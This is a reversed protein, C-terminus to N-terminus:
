ILHYLIKVDMGIPLTNNFNNYYVINTNYIINMGEKIKLKYLSIKDSKEEKIADYPNIYFMEINNLNIKENLCVYINMDTLVKNKQIAQEIVNIEQKLKECYDEVTTNDSIDLIRYKDKKLNM